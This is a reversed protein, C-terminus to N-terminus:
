HLKPVREMETRKPKPELQNSMELLKKVRSMDSNFFHELAPKVIKGAFNVDIEENYGLWRGMRELKQSDDFEVVEVGTVKDGDIHILLNGAVEITGQNFNTLREPGQTHKVSVMFPFHIARDDSFAENPRVFLDHIQLSYFHKNDIKAKLDPDTIISELEPNPTGVGEKVFEM